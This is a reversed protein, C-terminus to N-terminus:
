GPLYGVRLLLWQPLTRLCMFQVPLLFINHATHKTSFETDLNHNKQLVNLVLKVLVELDKTWM